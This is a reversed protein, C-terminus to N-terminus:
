ARHGFDLCLLARGLGRLAGRLGRRSGGLGLPARQIAAVARPAERVHHALVRDHPRQAVGDLAPAHMVRVQEDARAPSALRRHRLDERRAQVALAPRGHFRAPFALRAARDGGRARQVHDLHVGRRVVGHVVDALQALADRERGDAPAALHVDEVLGVHERRGRPVREQLGELLRGRVGHEHERRGLRLLHGRGDDIAAVAEVELAGGDLLDGVDYATRGGRLRDRDRRLRGRRERAGRRAAEAVREAQELLEDGVAPALDRELIDERHEARGLALQQLVGDVRHVGAVRARRQERDRAARLATAVRAREGRVELHARALQEDDRREALDGGLERQAGLDVRAEGRLGRADALAGRHAQELLEAGRELGDLGARVGARLELEREDLGRAREEVTREPREERADLEELAPRGCRRARRRGADNRRPQLLGRCVGASGSGSHAASGAGAASGAASRSFGSGAGAASGSSGARAGAASSM